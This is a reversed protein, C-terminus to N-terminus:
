RRPIRRHFPRAGHFKVSRSTGLSSETHERYLQAPLIDLHDSADAWLDSARQFFRVLHASGGEALRRRVPNQLGPHSRRVLGGARGELGGASSRVLSGCKVYKGHVSRSSMMPVVMVM